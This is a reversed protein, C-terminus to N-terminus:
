EDKLSVTWQYHVPITKKASAVKKITNNRFQDVTGCYSGFPTIESIEVKEFSPYTSVDDLVKEIQEQRLRINDVEFHFTFDLSRFRIWGQRILQEAIERLQDINTNQVDSEDLGFKDPNNRISELHEVVNIRTGFPSIWLGEPPLGKNQKLNFPKM